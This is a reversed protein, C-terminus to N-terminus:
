KLQYKSLNAKYSPIIVNKACQLNGQCDIMKLEKDYCFSIQELIAQTQSVKLCRIKPKANYHTKLAAELKRSDYAKDPNDSPAFDLKKM